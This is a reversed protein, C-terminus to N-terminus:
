VAGEAYIFRFINTTGGATYTISVIDGKKVHVYGACGGGVLSVWQHIALGNSNNTLTIFQNTADTEKWLYVYGDAPATYTTGSAGLTLDIYRNSPMAQHAIFSTDNSDIIKITQKGSFSLIKSDNEPADHLVRAFPCYYSKTTYYYWYNEESNYTYTNNIAPEILDLKWTGNHNTLRLVYDFLTPNSFLNTFNKVIVSESTAELNRLTGDENKGNPFMGTVGPLLFVVSGIYGFGNFTQNISTAVDNVSTVIAIPFSYGTTWTAGSDTTRRIINNVTDYWFGVGSLTPSTQGSFVASAANITNNNIDIFVFRAISGAFSNSSIDNAIVVEDFVGSGNPVYVKSGAKLTLTGNNLELKIDQPIETICNTIDDTSLTNRLADYIVSNKVPNDSTPSLASDVNQGINGAIISSGKRISM